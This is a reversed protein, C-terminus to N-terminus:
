GLDTTDSWSFRKGHASTDGRRLSFKQDKHNEHHLVHTLINGLQTPEGWAESAV